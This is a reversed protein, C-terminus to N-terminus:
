FDSNTRGGEASRGSFVAYFSGHQDIAAADDFEEVDLGILEISEIFFSGEDM